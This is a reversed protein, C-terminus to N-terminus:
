SLRARRNWSSDSPTTWCDRCGPGASTGSGLYGGAVFAGVADRTYAYYDAYYTTSGGGVATAFRVWPYKDDIGFEKVYGDANAMDYSLKVYDSTIAGSAYKTADPLYAIFYRYNGETGERGALVDGINQWANGYPNERGRYVCPYKGSTNSKISGSSAKVVDTAGNHWPRSSVYANLPINVAAGDFYLYTETTSKDEIKTIVRNKALEDSYIYNASISIAQGVVYGAAQDKTITIRNVGTEAVLARHAESYPLTACGYMVNQINKTAFEVYMLIEEVFWNEMLDITYQAGLKKANAVWTNLSGYDSYVGSRSSPKESGSAGEMAILYAASYSHQRLSGDKAICAPSPLFGPVPYMSILKKEYGDAEDIDDYYYFLPTENYVLKAPDNTTYGPEGEYATVIFEGDADRYGNCRRRGAWPWISDFNNTVIQDDVGVQAILGVADHTREGASVSSGRPWRVGYIKVHEQKELASIRSELSTIQAKTAFSSPDITVSIGSVRDIVTNLDYTAVNTIAAGQPRIWQPNDAFGAYTYLIESGDTDRAFVGIEKIFFGTTVGVSSVTVVIRAEGDGPNTVEEITANRLQHVLANLNEPTTPPTGDGVAVRTIELAGQSALLKSILALGKNTTISGELTAM